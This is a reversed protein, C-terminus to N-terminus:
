VASSLVAAQQPTVRPPPPPAEAMPVLDPQYGGYGGRPPYVAPYHGGSVPPYGAPPPYSGAYGGAPPLYGGPYAGYGNPAYGGSMVHQQGYATGMYQFGGAGGHGGMGAQGGAAVFPSVMMVPQEAAAALRSGRRGKARCALVAAAAGLAVVLLVGVAIGTVAGADLAAPDASAGGGGGLYGPQPAASPQAPAGACSPEGCVLSAVFAIGSSETSSDSSLAVSPSWNPPAQIAPPLASGSFPGGLVAGTLSANSFVRVRDYGSETSFATFTLRV